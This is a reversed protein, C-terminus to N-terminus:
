RLLLLRKTAVFSGARLRYFYMGSALNSGDFKVQYVGAERRDNVLVSVERGLMDFVTLTVHSTSPVEYRMATSPNFPNPYNQGLSFTAPNRSSAMETILPM